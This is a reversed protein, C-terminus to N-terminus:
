KKGLGMGYRSAYGLPDWQPAKPEEAEEGLTTIPRTQVVSVPMGDRWHRDIVWELDIPAKYHKEVDCVVQWLAAIMEDSLCRANRFREPMEREIVGKQTHDFTSVIKKDANVYDIIRGTEKDLEVHDAQVVGQVVAEGWGWSGEIVIRDRKRTVPHASFAVGACRAHVLRIVGVAMPTDRYRQNQHARYTIARAAFLSGWARRISDVVDQAGIVGLYSEYQGAFSANSSDEGTASSRVAVPMDIEAYRFCLDDYADRLLTALSGDMPTTEIIERIEWSVTEAKELDHPDTLLALKEDIKHELHGNRLFRRFADATVAFGDPVDLGLGRMTGLRAMKPGVIPADADNLNDIWRLM